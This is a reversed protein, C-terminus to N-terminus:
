INEAANHECETKRLKEIISLIRNREEPNLEFRMKKCFGSESMGAAEALQWMFLGASKVAARIEQNARSM